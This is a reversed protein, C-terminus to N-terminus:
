APSGHGASEPPQVRRAFSLGLAVWSLVFPAFILATTAREAVGGDLPVGAVGAVALAVATAAQAIPVLRSIFGTSAVDWLLIASGIPLLAILIWNGTGTVVAFAAIVMIVAGLPSLASLRDSVQYALGVASLPFGIGGIFMALITLPGIGGTWIAEGLAVFLILLVTWSLGGVLAVAGLARANMSSRRNLTEASVPKAYALRWTIDAPIGYILRLTMDASVAGAPRGLTTAEEQECWLDDAVEDRRAAGLDAPLGRTYLDVWARVLRAAPSGTM